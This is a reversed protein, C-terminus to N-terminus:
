NGASWRTNIAEAEARESRATFPKDRVVRSKRDRKRERKKAEWPCALSTQTAARIGDPFPFRGSGEPFVRKRRVRRLAIFASLRVASFCRSLAIARGHKEGSTASRSETQENGGSKGELICEEGTQEGRCHGIIFRM